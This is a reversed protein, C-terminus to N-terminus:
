TISDCQETENYRVAKATPLTPCHYGAKDAPPYAKEM